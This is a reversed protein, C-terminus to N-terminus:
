SVALAPSTVHGKLATPPPDSIPLICSPPNQRSSKTKLAHAGPHLPAKRAAVWLAHIDRRGIKEIEMQHVVLPQMHICHKPRKKCETMLQLPPRAGYIVPLREGGRNAPSLATQTSIGSNIAVTIGVAINSLAMQMWQLIDDWQPQVIDKRQHHVVSCGLWGAFTESILRLVGPPHCKLM